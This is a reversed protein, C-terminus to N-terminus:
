RLPPPQHCLHPRERSDTSMIGCAGLGPAYFTLDGTKKNASKSSSSPPTFPAQQQLNGNDPPPQLTSAPPADAKGFGKFPEVSCGTKRVARSRDDSSEVIRGNVVQEGDQIEDMSRYRKLHRNKADHGNLTRDVMETTGNLVHHGNTSDEAAAAPSMSSDAIGTTPLEPSRSKSKSNASFDISTLGESSIDGIRDDLMNEIEPSSTEGNDDERMEPLLRRSKLPSNPDNYPAHILPTHTGRHGDECKSPKASATAERQTFKKIKYPNGGLFEMRPRLLWDGKQIAPRQKDPPDDPQGAIVCVGQDYKLWCNPKEGKSEDACQIMSTVPDLLGVWVSDLDKESQYMADDGKSVWPELGRFCYSRSEKKMDYIIASMAGRSIQTSLRIKTLLTNIVWGDSLELYDFPDQALAAHYRTIMWIPRVINNMFSWPSRWRSAGTGDIPRAPTMNVRVWKLLDLPHKDENFASAYIRLFMLDYITQAKSDHYFHRPHGSPVGEIPPERTPIKETRLAHEISTDEHLGLDFLRRHRRCIPSCYVAQHLGGCFSIGTQRCWRTQRREEPNEDQLRNNAATSSGNESAKPQQSDDLLTYVLKQPMLMASACSDCYLRAYYSKTSQHEVLIKFPSGTTVRWCKREYMLVDGPLHDKQARLALATTLGCSSRDIPVAQCTRSAEKTFQKLEEVTKPHSFDPEHKDGWYLTAPRSVSKSKLMAEPAINLIRKEGDPGLPLSVIHEDDTAQGYRKFTTMEDTLGRLGGTGLSTLLAREVATLKARPHLADSLLELADQTTGGGCHFLAAALRFVARAHLRLYLVDPCDKARLPCETEDMMLSALPLSAWCQPDASITRKNINVWEKEHNVDYEEADLYRKVESVRQHAKSASPGILQDLSLGARYADAAALEPRHELIYALSRNLFAIIHGPAERYLVDTYQKIADRSRGSSLLANAALITSEPPKPSYEPDTVNM